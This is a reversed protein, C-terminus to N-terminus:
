NLRNQVKDLTELNKIPGISAITPKSSLLKNAVKEISSKTKRCEKTFKSLPYGQNELSLAPGSFDSEPDIFIILRFGDTATIKTGGFCFEEIRIWSRNPLVFTSRPLFRSVKGLMEANLKFNKIKDLQM